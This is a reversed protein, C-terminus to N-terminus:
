YYGLYQNILKECDKPYLRQKIKIRTSCLYFM